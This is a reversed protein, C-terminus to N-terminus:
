ALAEDLNNQFKPTVRNLFTARSVYQTALGGAKEKDMMSDNKSSVKESRVYKPPRAEVAVAVLNM